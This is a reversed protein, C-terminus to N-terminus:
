NRNWKYLNRTYVFILVFTLPLLGWAKFWIAFTIWLVQNFLGVIWGWRSKNGLLIMAVITLISITIPLVLRM